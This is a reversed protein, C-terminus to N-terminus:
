DGAHAACTDAWPVERLAAVDLATDCVRCRGYHDDDADILKRLGEVQELARRVIEDPRAGPKLRLGLMRVITMPDPSALLEALKTALTQGRRMLRRRLETVEAEGLRARLSESM